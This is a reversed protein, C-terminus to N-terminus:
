DKLSYRTILFLIKKNIRTATTAITACSAAHPPPPPDVDEGPAPEVTADEAKDAAGGAALVEVDVDDDVAGDVGGLEDAAPSIHLPAPCTCAM